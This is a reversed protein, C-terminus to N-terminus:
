GLNSPGVQIRTSEVEEREWEGDGDSEREREGDGEEDQELDGEGEGARGTLVKQRQSDGENALPQSTPGISHFSPSPLAPGRKIRHTSSPITSNRCGRSPSQCRRKFIKTFLRRQNRSQYDDRGGEAAATTITTTTTPMSIYLNQTRM